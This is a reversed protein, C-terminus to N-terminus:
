RTSSEPPFTQLRFEVRMNKRAEEFTKPVAVVPEAMGVGVSTFQNEQLDLQRSKAYGRLAELVADARDQSLKVAGDVLYAAHEFKGGKIAKVVAATDSLDIPQGNFYCVEKGAELTQRVTGNAKGESLIARLVETPDAHGRIVIAAGGCVAAQDLALQFEQLYLEPKFEPSNPDFHISFYHLV